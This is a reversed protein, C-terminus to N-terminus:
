PKAKQPKKIDGQGNSTHVSNTGTTKTQQNGSQSQTLNLWDNLKTTEYQYLATAFPDTLTTVWNEGKYATIISKWANKIFSEGKKRQKMEKWETKWKSKDWKRNRPTGDAFAIESGNGVKPILYYEDRIKCTESLDMEVKYQGTGWAPTYENGDITGTFSRPVIFCDGDVTILEKHKPNNKDYIFISDENLLEEKIKANFTFEGLQQNDTVMIAENIWSSYLRVKLTLNLDERKKFDFRKNLNETSDNPLNCFKPNLMFSDIEVIFKSHDIIRKLGISDRRIKCFVYFVEAGLGPKDKVEIYNKCGFGQFIMNEPDLAGKLSPAGYFDNIVAKSSLKRSYSCQQKATKYWKERPSKLAEVIYSVGLGLLNSSANVTKQVLSSGFATKLLNSFIGRTNRSESQQLLRLQENTSFIEQRSAENRVLIQFKREATMADKGKVQPTLPQAFASTTSILM